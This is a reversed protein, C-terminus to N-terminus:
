KVCSPRLRNEIDIFVSYKQMKMRAHGSKTTIVLAPIMRVYSRSIIGDFNHWITNDACLVGNRVQVQVHLSQMQAVRAYKRYVHVRLICLGRSARLVRYSVLMLNFPCCEWRAYRPYILGDRSWSRVLSSYVIDGRYIIPLHYRERRRKWDQLEFRIVQWKRPFPPFV